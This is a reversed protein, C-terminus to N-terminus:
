RGKYFSIQEFGERLSDVHKFAISTGKAVCNLPDPAVICNVKLKEKLLEDLGDILAGGGTLFVGSTYIDGVLEPPTVELVNHIKEIITEIIDICAEYIDMQSIEIKTPLGKILDRGKIPIKLSRDIRYVNLFDIKVKEAMKEGIFVKYKSQVFKIIAEDLANGAMKISDTKVVGGLSVIAIDTTGGGIDVVMKGNAEFVDEGAGLLGALPEHILYIKRAGAKKAADVVARSEVETIQSPICMVICPKVLMKGTVKNIFEAIMVDVMEHDSIVGDKLPHIVQIYEPTRGIMDYAKQGVAVVTRTKRNYGVVTPEDLMIKKDTCIIINATGLDIGIDVASM